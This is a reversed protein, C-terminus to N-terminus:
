KGKKAFVDIEKVNDMILAAMLVCSWAATRAGGTALVSVNTPCVSGEAQAITLVTTFPM